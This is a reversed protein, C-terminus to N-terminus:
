KLQGITAAQRNFLLDINVIKQLSKIREPNKSELKRVYTMLGQQEDSSLDKFNQFLTKLDSDSLKDSFNTEQSSSVNSNSTTPNSFNFNDYKM